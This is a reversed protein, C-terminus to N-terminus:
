RAAITPVERRFTSVVLRRGENVHDALAIFDVGFRENPASVQHPYWPSKLLNSLDAM